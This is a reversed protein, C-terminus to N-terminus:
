DAPTTVVLVADRAALSIPKARDFVKTTATLRTAELLVRTREVDVVYIGVLVVNRELM